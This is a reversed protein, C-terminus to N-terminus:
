SVKAWSRGRLMCERKWHEVQNKLDEIQAEMEEMRKVKKERSKRAALTNRARKIAVHDSPDEVVIPPLPAVRKRVGSNTVSGKRATNGTGSGLARAHPSASPSVSGGLNSHDDSGDRIIAEIEDMNPESPSPEPDPFLSPWRDVGNIALEEPQFLPSVEYSSDDDLFPSMLSSLPTSMPFAFVDQPSVTNLDISPDHIHTFNPSSFESGDGGGTVQLWDSLEKEDKMNESSFNLLSRQFNVFSSPARGPFPSLLQLNTPLPRGLAKAKHYQLAKLYYAQQGTLSYSRSQFPQQQQQQQPPASQPIHRNTFQSSTTSHGLGQIIADVQSNAPLSQGLQNPLSRTHQVTPRAPPPYLPADEFSIQPQNSHEYSLLPQQPTPPLPPLDDIPLHRIPLQQPPWPLPDFRSANSSHITGTNQPNLSSHTIPGSQDPQTVFNHQPFSRPLNEEPLHENALHSSLNVFGDQASVPTILPHSTLQKKAPSPISLCFRLPPTLWM